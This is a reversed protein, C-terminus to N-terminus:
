ACNKQALVPQDVIGPHGPKSDTAKRSSRSAPKSRKERGFGEDYNGKALFLQKYHAGCYLTGCSDAYNELRLICRCQICRFCNKHMTLGSAEMREMPYLRKSCISCVDTKPTGSFGKFRKVKPRAEKNTELTAKLNKATLPHREKTKRTGSSDKKGEEILREADWNEFVARMRKVQDVGVAVDKPVRSSCQVIDTDGHVKRREVPKQHPPTKSERPPRVRTQPLSNGRPLAKPDVNEVQECFRKRTVTVVDTLTADASDSMNQDQQLEPPADFVKSSWPNRDLHALTQASIYMAQVSTVDAVM